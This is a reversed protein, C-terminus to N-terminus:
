EQNLELGASPPAPPPTLARRLIEIEQANAARQQELQQAFEARQAELEQAHAASMAARETASDERLQAILKQTEQARQESAEAMSATKAMFAQELQQLREEAAATLQAEQIAAAGKAQERQAAGQERITAVAKQGEVALQAAQLRPDMPADPPVLQQALQMANQLHQMLPGLEKVLEQEALLLGETVPTSGGDSALQAIKAAQVAPDAHKRYLAAIHDACHKLLVPLAPKAMMPNACFIPSLMFQLHVRLHEIDDNTDYVKLQQLPDRAVLNEDVAEREKPEQPVNLIEEYDPYNFLKLSREVLVNDKFATPFMGRLQLVAQQQAYRQTDSYINPDSVPCVDMPGQFDERYVVLEGLEEITEEDNVLTADIRHLIELSRRQAEHLRAHVASFTVSGQEILALTTGVPMQAAKESAMAESTVALFGKASDICFKMLEFLVASPQPYPLPMVLKRIDDTAVPGEIETLTMPDLQLSSSSTRSGKLKLAGPFNSALASDLLARLSGGATGALSGIAQGLGMAYAGRWPFMPFEVIWHLKEYGDDKEEWNRRLALPESTTDDITLIYPAGRDKPALPDRGELDLNLQVEYIERLGDQNYPDAEKGEIKNSVEEAASGDISLASGAAAVPVDAYLGDAVRDEYGQRTLKILHTVREATYFSTAAAPICLDDIPVFEVCARRPQLTYWWKMYQSGGLPVQTLCQELQARYEPIAKTLQWNMYTSKREARSVKEDTSRGIIQSKVPGKPPFLEKMARSAFDICAELLVPHVTKSAGTFNASSADGSAGTLRLGKAYQEDREKRDERDRHVKEHVELAITKLFSRDIIDVLNEDFAKSEAAEDDEPEVITVSGDENEILEADGLEETPLETEVNDPPLVGEEIRLPLDAAPSVSTKPRM